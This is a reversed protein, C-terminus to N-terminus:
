VGVKVGAVSTIRKVATWRGRIGLVAGILGFLVEAWGSTDGIDWGFQQAILAVAMMLVGINTQSLFFDKGQM